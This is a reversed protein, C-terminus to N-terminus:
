NYFILSSSLLRRSGGDLVAAVAVCRSVGAAGGLTGTGDGLGGAGPVVALRTVELMDAKEAADSAPM